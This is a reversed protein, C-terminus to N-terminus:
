NLAQCREPEGMGKRGEARRGKATSSQSSNRPASGVDVAARPFRLEEEAACPWKGGYSRRDIMERSSESIYKGVSRSPGCSTEARTPMHSLASPRADDSASLNGQSRAARGRRTARVARARGGGPSHAPYRPRPPSAGAGAHSANEGGVAASGRRGEAM